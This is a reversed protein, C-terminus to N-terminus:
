CRGDAYHSLLTTAAQGHGALTRAISVLQARVVAISVTAFAM